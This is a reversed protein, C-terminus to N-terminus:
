HAPRGNGERTLSEWESRDIVHGARECEALWAQITELRWRVCGTSFRVARPLKGAADMRSITAKSVSLLEALQEADVTLREAIPTPDSM